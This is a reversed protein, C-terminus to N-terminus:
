STFYHYTNLFGTFRFLLSLQEDRFVCASVVVLFFYSRAATSKSSCFHRSCQVAAVVKKEAKSSTHAAVDSCFPAFSVKHETKNQFPKLFKFIAGIKKKKIVETLVLM